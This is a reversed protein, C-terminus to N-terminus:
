TSPNHAWEVVHLPLRPPSTAAIVQQAKLVGAIAVILLLQVITNFWLQDSEPLHALLLLGYVHLVFAGLSGRGLTVLVARLPGIVVELRRWALLVYATPLAVALNLIRGIGLDSLSFYREYLNVFAQPSVLRWHLWEPGGVTPNSLAFGMFAACAAVIAIPIPKPCRAVIAGLRDRYYGIVIGHVFLLQWALIPFVSEFEAATVQQPSLRYWLYVGWSVALLPRWGFASLALLCPVAVVVLWVYLGIIEFAWSGYRLMLLDRWDHATMTRPDLFWNIATPDWTTIASVDVGALALGLISLTVAVFALYLVLARRLLRRTVSLSGYRVLRAGYVTGLVIGSLVVFVEAATVVWFRQYSFWSLLSSRKSHDVIVCVMAFGRLWDIRVDRAGKPMSWRSMM